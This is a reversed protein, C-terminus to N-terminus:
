KILLKSKNHMTESAAISGIKGLPVFNRNLKGDFPSLRLTGYWAHLKTQINGDQVSDFDEKKQLEEAYLDSSNLLTYEASNKGVKKSLLNAYKQWRRTMKEYNELYRSDRMERDV